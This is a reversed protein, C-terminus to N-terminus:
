KESFFSPTGGSSGDSLSEYADKAAVLAALAKAKARKDKRQRGAAAAVKL